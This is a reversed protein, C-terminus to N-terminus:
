DQKRIKRRRYAKTAVGALGSGLLFLTAPEPTPTTQFTYSLTNLLWYGGRGSYSYTARAIGQGTLLTTFLQRDASYISLRGEMTFTTEFTVTGVSPDPFPFESATIIIGLYNRDNYWGDTYMVGGATFRPRVSLPDSPDYFRSFTAVAGFTTDPDTHGAHDFRTGGRISVGNGKVVFNRNDPDSRDFTIHGSTIVLPDAKADFSFAFLLPLLLIPFFRGFARPM